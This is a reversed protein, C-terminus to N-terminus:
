GGLKQANKVNNEAITLHRAVKSLAMLKIDIVGRTKLRDVHAMEQEALRVHSRAAEFLRERLRSM